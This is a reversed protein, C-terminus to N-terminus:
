SQPFARGSESENTFTKYYITFTGQVPSKAPSTSPIRCTAPSTALTVLIGEQVPDREAWELFEPARGAPHGRSCRVRAVHTRM